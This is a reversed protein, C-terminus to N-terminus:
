APAYRGRGTKIADGRRVLKSLARYTAEHTLGVTEAFAMVTGSQGFLSLGALVREEASHISLLEVRQRGAQVQDALREFLALGFDPNRRMQDMIAQKSFLVLETDVLARGACQFNQEFLCSEMFSEGPGATYLILQRGHRDSTSLEVRGTLVIALGAVPDGPHFVTEGAAYLRQQRHKADIMDFPAPVM